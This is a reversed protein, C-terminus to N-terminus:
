DQDEEQQISLINGTQADVECEFEIFGLHFDLEFKGDELEIELRSIQDQILGLKALVKALAEEQTIAPAAAPPDQSDEDWDRDIELLEGTSASVECDYETSGVHFEVDFKGKELKIELRSIQDLTLNLKALVKALAEEQTITPATAPPTANWDENRQADAKLIKGTYGHVEYEYEVGNVTFELEYIGDDLEYEKNTFDAESFGLQALVLEKAKELGILGAENQDAKDVVVTESTSGQNAVVTRVTEAVEELFGEAPYASGEQLKIVINKSNGELELQFQGSRYIAEVLEALVQKVTKGDFDKYTLLLEKGDQNIGELEVVLGNKDYEIEIEPNLSLLLTGVTGSNAEPSLPKVPQAPACASLMVTLAVLTALITMITRKM